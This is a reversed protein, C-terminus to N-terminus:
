LMRLLSAIMESVGDQIEHFEGSCSFGPYTVVKLNKDVHVQPVQVEVVQAGFENAIRAYDPCSSKGLTLTVRQSGFVKAALIPALGCFDMPKGAENLDHLVKEVQYLESLVKVVGGGGPFVVAEISDPKLDSLKEVTGRAIRASEVFVLRENNSEEGTKHNTVKAFIKEPAYCVPTAGYRTLAAM